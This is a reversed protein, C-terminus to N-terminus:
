KQKNKKSKVSRREPYCRHCCTCPPLPKPAPRPKDPDPMDVLVGGKKGFLWGIFEIVAVGAVIGLTGFVVVMILGGLADIGNGVGNIMGGLIKGAPNTM